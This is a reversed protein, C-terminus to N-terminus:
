CCDCGIEGCLVIFAHVEPILRCGADDLCESQGCPHLVATGHCHDLEDAGASCCSDPLEILAAFSM